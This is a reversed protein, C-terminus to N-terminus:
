KIQNEHYKWTFPCIVELPPCFYNLESINLSIGLTVCGMLLLVPTLVRTWKGEAVQETWKVKGPSLQRLAFASPIPM